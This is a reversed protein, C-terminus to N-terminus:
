RNEVLETYLRDHQRAVEAWSLELARRRANAAMDARLRPDHWLGLLAEAFVQPDNDRILIAELGPVYARLSPLDTTVVPLGCALGELICNNATASTLPLFLVDAQQYMALLTQDDIGTYVSLNPLDRSNSVSSSVIQFEVGEVQHLLEAVEFVVDYDRLWSGVSLCRLRGDARQGPIPRFYDTDVGHMILSIREEPLYQEFYSYQDPSLVIVRDIHRIAGKSILQELRHPPQHFTAVVSPQERVFGLIGFVYPLFQLSHEGDLYHLINVKGHLWQQSAAAEALLDNLGYVPTGGRRVLYKIIRRFLRNGLPYRADVTPVVQEDIQFRERDMYDLFRHAGSYPGWHPYHSRILHIHM